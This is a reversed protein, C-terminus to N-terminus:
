TLRCRAKADAVMRAVADDDLGLLSKGATVQADHGDLSIDGLAIGMQKALANAFHVANGVSQRNASDYDSFQLVAKQVEEPFQWKKALDTAIKRHTRDVVGVWTDGDISWLKPNRQAIRAEAELLMTAVVPKGIDHLLGAVFCVEPEEVGVQIAVNQALIAVARAHDWLMRTAEATKADRSEAVRHASTESLISRVKEVGIKDVTQELTRCGAAAGHRLIVAGLIPDLEIMAVLDKPTADARRIVDNAKVVIAPLLPLTLSDQAIRNELIIELQEALKMPALRARPCEINALWSERPRRAPGAM